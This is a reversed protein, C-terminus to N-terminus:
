KESKSNQNPANVYYWGTDWKHKNPDKIAIGKSVLYDWNRLSYDNALPSSVFKKGKSKVLEALKEYVLNGYGQNKYKWKTIFGIDINSVLMQDSNNPDEVLYIYGLHEQLENFIDFYYGNKIATEQLSVDRSFDHGLDKNESPM